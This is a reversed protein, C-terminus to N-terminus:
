RRAEAVFTGCAWCEECATGGFSGLSGTAAFHQDRRHGCRCVEACARSLGAEGGRELAEQLDPDYHENIERLDAM